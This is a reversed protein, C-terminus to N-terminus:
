ILVLEDASEIVVEDALVMQTDALREESLSEFFSKMEPIAEVLRTFYIRDLFLITSRRAAKVTATAPYGKILSIEGFIDSAKLTALLVQEGEHDKLVDVEGSLVVYLGRGEDGENIIVTEPAVEHGTFRKILDLRQKRSFPEFLRSTAMLNNLMRERTFSDLAEAVMHLEQALASLGDRDIELLDSEGETAVSATRPSAHIVAMEGFLAGEGLKALNRQNGQSDTRFVRVQGQALIFFSSGIEGEKIVLAQHPLRLAKTRQCLRIFSDAPLDSLLPLRHLAEPYSQVAKFDSAARGAGMILAATDMHATLDPPAVKTEPHEPSIRQGFKSIKDSDASYLRGLEALLEDPSQGLENLIKSIVIAVYPHGSRSGFGAVAKYVDIAAERAGMRLMLDAVKIRPEIDHPDADVLRWYIKMATALDNSGVAQLGAQKLEGLTISM